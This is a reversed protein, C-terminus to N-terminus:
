TLEALVSEVEACANHFEKNSNESYSRYESLIEDCKDSYEKPTNASVSNIRNRTANFMEADKKSASIYENTMKTLLESLRDINSM